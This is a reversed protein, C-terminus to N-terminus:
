AAKKSDDRVRARLCQSILQRLPKISEQISGTADVSIMAADACDGIPKFGLAPAAGKIQFCLRRVDPMSDAAIAKSLKQSFAKLEEIFEPVFKSTPDDPKLTSYLAGSGEGSSGDLLLFEGIAQTLKDATIPKTVIANVRAGRAHDKVCARTDATVMIIPTQVGANRLQDALATGATDPLDNDLLIIDFSEKARAMTEAGTEVSVINMGTDKLYHRVLRRDMPSDDVHLLSGSLRAPDVFELTFRGEMPDVDLFDRVNVPTKFKLGVEHILGKFHKCRMVVADVAIEGGRPQPLFVVCTTGAHVYASHLIGVGDSSLNRAAYRLNTTAGGPQRMEIRLSGKVFDWRVTRRKFEGGAQADLEKNLAAVDSERLRVTNAPANGASPK